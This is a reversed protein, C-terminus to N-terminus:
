LERLTRERLPGASSSGMDALDGILKTIRGALGQAREAPLANCFLLPGAFREASGDTTQRPNASPADAKQSDL